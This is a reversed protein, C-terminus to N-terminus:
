CAEAGSCETTRSAPGTSVAREGSGCPRRRPSVPRPSSSCCRLDDTQRLGPGVLGRNSVVLVEWEVARGIPPLQLLVGLYRLPHDLARPRQAPTEVYLAATRRVLWNRSLRAVGVVVGLITALLIGVLSIFLTNKAGVLLASFLDETSRFDSDPIAFGAPQNLYDFSTDIGLRDLNRAVNAFLYLAFLALVFVFAVQFAIRLVRVNRWPPPRRSVSELTTM